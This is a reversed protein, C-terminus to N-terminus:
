PTIGISEDEPTEQEQEDQFEFKPAFMAREAQYPDPRLICWGQVTEDTQNYGPWRGSKLCRCYNALIAPYGCAPNRGLEIFGPHGIEGEQGFLARNPEWPEFNEQMIFCWTNRDENTAACYLDLDWAAQIHWGFDFAQRSFKLPHASRTTKLDGLCSSFESDIRPVFDLLCSVPIVLGTEDDKWEGTVLVQRDSADFWRKITDDDGIPEFLRRVAADCDALQSPSVIDRGAEIQEAKWADCFDSGYRWPKEITVPQRVCDCKKCKLSESVSGCAPCEMRKQPYTLPEVAHRKAFLDPTISRCDILNGWAKAKTDPPSWGRVWRSSLRAFAIASSPSMVFEPKGREVGDKLAHYTKSDVQSGAVKCNIFMSRFIAKRHGM